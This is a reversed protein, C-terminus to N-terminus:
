YTFQLYQLARPKTFVESTEIDTMGRGSIDVDPAELYFNSECSHVSGERKLAECYKQAVYKLNDRIATYNVGPMNKAFQETFLNAISSLSYLMPVPNQQVSSAWTMADGNSPPTSGVTFTTTEVVKSFNSAAEQQEKTLSFGGGISFIGSYSAQAEVSIGVKKLSEYSKQSVKHRQVFKAGFTVDTFFHTGFYKIFDLVTEESIKPDALNKAWALFGPDFPPPNTFDIISYYNQCMAHSMVFLFEGTSMESTDKKYSASASFQFGWGGGIFFFCTMRTKLM